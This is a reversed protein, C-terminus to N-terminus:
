FPRMELWWAELAGPQLALVAARSAAVPPPKLAALRDLVAARDPGSTRSLLHWLTLADRARAHSLIVALDDRGPRDSELSALAAKFAESADAFFPAGLGRGARILCMGGDMPVRSEHRGDQLYVWGLLVRLSGNGDSDTELRYECGMDVARAGPTDVVFQRPPASIHATIAGHRLDLVRRTVDSSKIRLASGPEVEVQGMGAVQVLASSHEDTRLWQGAALRASANIPARGVTPSGALAQVDWAAPEVARRALIAAAAALVIMAAAALHARAPRIPRSQIAIPAPTPAPMEPAPARHRYVALVEELRQVDPDPPASPDWLYDPQTPQSM